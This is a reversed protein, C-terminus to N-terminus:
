DREGGVQQAKARLMEVTEAYEHWYDPFAVKLRHLNRDDACQAARGISSVFSGGYRQMAEVIALDQDTMANEKAAGAPGGSM